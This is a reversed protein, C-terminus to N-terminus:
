KILNRSGHPVRKTSPASSTHTSGTNNSSPTSVVPPNCTPCTVGDVLLADRQSKCEARKTTAEDELKTASDIIGECKEIFNETLQVYYGIQSMAGIVKGCPKWYESCNQLQSLKSKQTSVLNKISKANNKTTKSLRIVDDYKKILGALRTPEPCTEKCM